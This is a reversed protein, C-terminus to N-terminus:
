AAGRALAGLQERLAEFEAQLRDLRENFERVFREPPGSVVQPRSAVHSATSHEDRKGSETVEDVV